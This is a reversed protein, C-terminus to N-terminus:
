YGLGVLPSEVFQVFTIVNEHDQVFNIYPVRFINLISEQSGSLDEMVSFELGLVKIQKVHQPYGEGTPRFELPDSSM